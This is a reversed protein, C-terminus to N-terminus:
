LRPLPRQWSVRPPPRPLPSQSRLRLCRQLLQQKKRSPGWGPQRLCPPLLGGYTVRRWAAIDLGASSGPCPAALARGGSSDAAGICAQEVLGPLVSALQNVQEALKATTVRKPKAARKAQVGIPRRTLLARILEEPAPLVHPASPEFGVVMGSETVPDFPSVFALM